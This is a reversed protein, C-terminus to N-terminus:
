AALICITIIVAMNLIRNPNWSCVNIGNLASDHFMACTSNRIKGTIIVYSGVCINILAGNICGTLVAIIMFPCVM